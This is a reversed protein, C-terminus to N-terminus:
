ITQKKVVDEVLVGVEEQLDTIQVVGM